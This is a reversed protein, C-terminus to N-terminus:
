KWPKGPIGPYRAHWVRLPATSEPRATETEAFRCASLPSDYLVVGDIAHNNIVCSGRNILLSFSHSHHIILSSLTLCGFSLGNSTNTNIYIINHIM